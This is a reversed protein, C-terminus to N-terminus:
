VERTHRNIQTKALHMHEEAWTDISTNYMHVYACQNICHFSHLLAM